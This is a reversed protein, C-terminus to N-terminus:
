RCVFLPLAATTVENRSLDLEELGFATNGVVIECINSGDSVDLSRLDFTSAKKGMFPKALRSVLLSFQKDEECQRM